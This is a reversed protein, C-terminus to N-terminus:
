CCCCRIYPSCDPSLAMDELSMGKLDIKVAEREAPVLDSPALPAGALLPLLHHKSALMLM